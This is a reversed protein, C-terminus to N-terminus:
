FLIQNPPFDEFAYQRLSQPYYNNPQYLQAEPVWHKGPTPFCQTYFLIIFLIFELSAPSSDSCLTGVSRLVARNALGIVCANHPSRVGVSRRSKTLQTPEALCGSVGLFRIWFAQSISVAPFRCGQRDELELHSLKGPHLVLELYKGLGARLLASVM